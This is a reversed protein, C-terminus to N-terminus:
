CDIRPEYPDPIGLGALIRKELREMDAAEDRREHDYGLLHLVGHVVLHAWHDDPPKGQDRAEREVVPACIVLDGLPDSGASEAVRARVQEPLEAPFSLVNTPRDKRRYRFNLERSEEEGVLRVLLGRRGPGGELAATAWRAFCDDAPTDASPFARQVVLDLADAPAKGM